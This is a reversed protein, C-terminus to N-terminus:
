FGLSKQNTRRYGNRLILSLNGSYQSDVFDCQIKMFKEETSPLAESIKKM